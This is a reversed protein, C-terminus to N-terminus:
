WSPHPVPLGSPLAYTSSYSFIDPRSIMKAPDRFQNSTLIIDGHYIVILSSLTAVQSRTGKGIVHLFVRHYGVKCVGDRVKTGGNADRTTFRVELSPNKRTWVIRPPPPQSNPTSESFSVVWMRFLVLLLVVGLEAFSKVM